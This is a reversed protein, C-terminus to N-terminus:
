DDLRRPLNREPLEFVGGCGTHQMQGAATLALTEAGYLARHLCEVCVWTNCRDCKAGKPMAYPGRQIPGSFFSKLARKLPSAEDDFTEFSKSCKVCSHKAM